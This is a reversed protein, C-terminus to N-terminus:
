DDFGYFQRAQRLAENCAEANGQADAQRAKDLAANAQKKAVDEAHEVDRPTPQYHLQAGLTQSFTPGATKGPPLQVIQRELAAIQATCPGALALDAGCLTLALVAGAIGACLASVLAKGDVRGFADM